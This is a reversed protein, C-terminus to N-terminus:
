ACTCTSVAPNAFYLHANALLLVRSTRVDRLLALQGVTPLGRVGEATQAQAELVCM